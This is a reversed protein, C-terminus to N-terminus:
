RVGTGATGTPWLVSCHQKEGSRARVLESIHWLCGPCGARPLLLLMVLIPCEDGSIVDNCPVAPHVKAVGIAGNPPNHICPPAITTTPPFSHDCPVISVSSGFGHTFAIFLACTIAGQPPVFFSLIQAHAVPKHRVRSAQHLASVWQLYIACRM